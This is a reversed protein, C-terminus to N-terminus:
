QRATLLNLPYMSVRNRMVCVEVKLTDRWASRSMRWIETVKDETGLEVEAGDDDAIEAAEM